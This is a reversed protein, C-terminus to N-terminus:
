ASKIGYLTFTSGTIFNYANSLIVLSTITATNRWLGVSAKTGYDASDGRMLVTKYTTSNSYNQIQIIEMNTISTTFGYYDIQIQPFNSTRDSAATSGNGRLFTQSYNNGTDGNFRISGNATAVSAGANVVIILDTYTSPISSFTVSSQNSGLTSTAIAEYTAPM